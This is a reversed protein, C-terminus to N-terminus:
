GSKTRGAASATASPKHSRPITSPPLPFPSAIAALLILPTRHARQQDSSVALNAFSCLSAFTIDIPWLSIEGSIAREITLAQSSDLKSPPLCRFRM